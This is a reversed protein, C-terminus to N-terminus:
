LSFDVLPIPQALPSHHSEETRNVALSSGFRQHTNQSQPAWTLLAQKLSGVYWAVIQNVDATNHKSRGSIQRM